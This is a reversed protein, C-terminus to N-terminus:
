KKFNKIKEYAYMAMYLWCVSALMLQFYFGYNELIQKM